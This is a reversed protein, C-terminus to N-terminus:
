WRFKEVRFEWIIVVFVKALALSAIICIDGKEIAKYVHEMLYPLRQRKVITTHHVRLGFQGARLINNKSIYGVLQKNGYKEMLLALFPQVSVPGFDSPVQRNAIKPVPTICSM